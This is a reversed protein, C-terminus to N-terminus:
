YDEIKFGHEDNRLPINKEETFDIEIFNGRKILEIMKEINEKNGQAEMDVSGDNNNRIWGNIGYISASKEARYRFGVGQVRGHFKFRKRVLNM